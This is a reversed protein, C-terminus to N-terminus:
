RSRTPSAGKLHEDLFRLYAESATIRNERKRFGHGEDDFVVYEVPVGNARVADVLEDSEVQLVRPDNAGQVVLLPKRVSSAHFLPSIRRHRAEDVAPDGMEDYLSARFAGWWPPISKLTREWNTVGFINIGADFADPHFTLAAATMYGGYSGGMVAIRGGDVWALGELYGRAAVIDRLDDEGHRRDDLHYFTKGYGSSGRNNAGLVAYGHNVLHQFMARYGKSTQGGPGGHVWVVAPVPSTESAQRPKYLIGPIELGDFSPYRVVQGEVLHERAIAPNLADTVPIAARDAVAGDLELFFLDSPRTDGNLVFSMVADDQSFRVAGIQGEPVDGLPVLDGTSTDYLEVVTVADRNIYSVRYKGTNSFAFGDVGWDAAVLPSREMTDLDLLWAQHFEGHEDTGYVLGRGDPTFEFPTHDVKGEHETLLFPERLDSSLDVLHLNSDGSSLVETVVIKTGDPSVAGISWGLSNQYVATRRYPEESNEAEYHYLDFAAPDRENTLVYFAPTNDAWGVFSAKLGDGPTLDRTSGDLERVVLHNLENGGEDYSYLVREDNPFYSQAFVAHDGSSTLQTKEGTQRDIAFVNYVGTEDSSVLMSRGDPSFAHGPVSRYSTTEFFTAADYTRFPVAEAPSPGEPSTPRETTPRENPRAGGACAGLLLVSLWLISLPISLRPTSPCPISSRLTPLPLAVPTGTVHLGSRLSPLPSRTVAM